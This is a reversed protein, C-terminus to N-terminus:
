HHQGASLPPGAEWYDGGDQRQAAIASRVLALTPDPEPGAMRRGGGRGSTRNAQIGDGDEDKCGAYIAGWGRGVAAELIRGPPWNTDTLRDIDAIFKRYATPSNTLNKKRRNALFDAWVQEDAWDPRPFPETKRARTEGTHVPPTPNIKPTQPSKDLSPAANRENGDRTVDSTVDGEAKKRERYRRQREAGASRSPGADAEMAELLALKQADSLGLEIMTRLVNLSM